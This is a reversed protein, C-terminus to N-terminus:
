ESAKLASGVGARKILRFAGPHGEDRVRVPEKVTCGESLHAACPKSEGECCM